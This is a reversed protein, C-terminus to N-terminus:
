TPAPIQKMIENFRQTVVIECKDQMVFECGGSDHTILYLVKDMNICVQKGNRNTLQLVVMKFVGYNTLRLCVQVYCFTAASPIVIQGNNV